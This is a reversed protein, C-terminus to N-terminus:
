RGVCERRNKTPLDYQTLFGGDECRLENLKNKLFLFLYIRHWRRRDGMVSSDEEIAGFGGMM